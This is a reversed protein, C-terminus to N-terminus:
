VIKKKKVVVEVDWNDDDLGAQARDRKRSNPREEAVPIALSSLSSSSFSSFSDMPELAPMVENDEEFISIQRKKKSSSEENSLSSSSSSSSSTKLGNEDDLKASKKKKKRDAATLKKLSSAIKESSSLSSSSSSSSTSESSSSLSPSRFSKSSSSDGESDDESRRSNLFYNDDVELQESKGGDDKSSLESRAENDRESDALKSSSSSSSSSSSHSSIFKLEAEEDEKVNEEKKAKANPDFAGHDRIATAMSIVPHASMLATNIKNPPVGEIFKQFIKWNVRVDGAARHAQDAPINFRKRLDQLKHSTKVGKFLSRSLFLTDFSKWFRKKVGVRECESEYLKMDYGWINHGALCAVKKSTQKLHTNIWDEFKTWVHKFDKAHEVDEDSIGHIDRAEDPIPCGPNILESFSADSDPIYGALEVPRPNPGPDDKKPFLGTSEFDFFVWMATDNTKIVSAVARVPHDPDTMATMVKSVETEGIMKNFVGQLMMVDNYADHAKLVEVGLSHCLGTLSLDGQIHLAKALFLTCFPKWSNPVSEGIRALESQLIPWDHKYGNHMVFFAFQNGNLDRNVWKKLHPWVVKFAHKAPQKSDHEFNLEEKKKRLEEPPQVHAEFTRQAKERTPCHVVIQTICQLPDGKEKPVSDVELDLFFLRPTTDVQVSSM